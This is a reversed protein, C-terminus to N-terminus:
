EWFYTSQRVVDLTKCDARDPCDDCKGYNTFQLKGCDNKKRNQNGVVDALLRMATAVEKDDIM